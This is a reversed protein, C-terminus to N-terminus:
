VQHWRGTLPDLEFFLRGPRSRRRQRRLWALLSARDGPAIRNVAVALPLLDLPLERRKPRPPPRM